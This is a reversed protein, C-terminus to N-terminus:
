FTLFGNNSTGNDFNRNIMDCVNSLDSVTVGAPLAGVNGGLVANALALVQSVTYGALKNGPAIKLNGLGSKLIGKSSFDVNLKLATVQAGFVGAETSTPNTYSKKLVNPTGGAPLYNQVALQSTLKITYTGGEVFSSPYVNTYYAKLLTGPNNGSPVTGWGGQTYTAYGTPCSTVTVSKSATARCGASTTVTVGLTTTGTSGATWLISATGQGYNITGNVITWVYTAGTGASPVS